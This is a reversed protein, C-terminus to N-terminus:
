ADTLARVAEPRTGDARRDGRRRRARSADADHWAVIERAGAQFPITASWGPVFSKVLSNDFIVSHTKDGLLSEGWEPVAAVIADTTVHVLEPERVGAADALARYM